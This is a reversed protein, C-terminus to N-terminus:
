GALKMAGVIVTIAAGMTLIIKSLSRLANIGDVVESILETRQEIVRLTMYNDQIHQRMENISVTMGDTLDELQKLKREIRAYREERWAQSYDNGSTGVM